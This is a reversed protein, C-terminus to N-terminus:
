GPPSGVRRAVADLAADAAPVADAMSLFGHALGPEHRGDVPVGAERLRDAYALGEDRLPDHGATVVTAPPLGALDNDAARAPAAYPSARQVPSPCYNEWFWAMDARTLFPGDANERYSESEARADLVPYLLLQGAVTPWSQDEPLGARARLAVAAALNGGASTGGVSLREGVGLRDREDAVWRLAAAADDLAAPFPPEPALRYDVSVVTCDGRRALRRCVDGASDLTGLTWGGGHYFVVGPTPPEVDRYLRVAVEGAPGEFALDRVVDVAPPEEPTFLDDTPPM